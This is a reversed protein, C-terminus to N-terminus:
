GPAPSGSGAAGRRLPGRGAGSVQHSPLEADPMGVRTILAWKLTFRMERNTKTADSGLILMEPYVGRETLLRVPERERALRCVEAWTQDPTRGDSSSWDSIRGTLNVPTSDNTTEGGSEDVDAELPPADPVAIPIITIKPMTVQYSM